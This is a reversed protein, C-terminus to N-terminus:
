IHHYIYFGNPNWVNLMRSDSDAERKKINELVSPKFVPYRNLPFIYKDNCMITDLLKCLWYDIIM